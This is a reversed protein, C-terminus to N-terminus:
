ISFVLQIDDSLQWEEPLYFSQALLDRLQINTNQIDTSLM